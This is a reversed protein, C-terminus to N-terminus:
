RPADGALGLTVPVESLTLRHKGAATLPISAVIEFTVDTGDGLVMALARRAQVLRADALPRELVLKVSVRRPEHQVVQYRAIESFEKLVHSFFPGPVVRGQATTIADMLRGDIAELTRHARGCPCAGEGLRALDGVRYRIFPMALNHLDTVVVEGTEGPRAPRGDRLVEVILNEETLHLGLRAECQAAILLFERSGYTNFAPCGFVTEIVRVEDPTVGEVGLVIGELAPPPIAQREMERAFHYLHRAYAVLHRPRFRAMREVYGRVTDPSVRFVDLFQQRLLTQHVHIKARPWRRTPPFSQSTWLHTTREGDRAGAWAYGRIRAAVRWDYSGRDHALRLPAGSSGSTSKWIARSAHAPAVAEGGRHRLTDRDVLPLRRLDDLSRITEVAVGHEAFLSRYLPVERAAHELLARLEGLQFDALRDRSWRESGRLFDLRRATTRGRLLGDYGRLYITELLDAYRM